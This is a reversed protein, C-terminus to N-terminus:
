RETMSALDPWRMGFKTALQDRHGLSLLPAGGGWKDAVSTAYSKESTVFEDWLGGAFDMTVYWTRSEGPRKYGFVKMTDEESEDEEIEIEPTTNGGTSLPDPLHWAGSASRVLTVAEHRHKDRKEDYEFHWREVLTWVGNVWRYVTRFWGHEELLAVHNQAEDSDIAYALQHISPTDPHLAIPAWPGGNLYRRYAQYYGNQKGWSRLAETVQMRHGLFRDIRALSKAPADRLFGRGGGLNVIVGSGAM